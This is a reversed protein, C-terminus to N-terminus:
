EYKNGIPNKRKRYEEFTCVKYYRKNVWRSFDRLKKEKVNNYLMVFPLCGLGDLIEFRYYDQEFTTNFGCLIYFMLHFPKIGSDILIKIGDLVHKEYGMEDWAFYLRRRNFKLDYYKVKALVDAIEKTILRIDLGQNFCVKIKNDIFHNLKGICKRSALFNNDILLVKTHKIFSMDEDRFYGEKERM